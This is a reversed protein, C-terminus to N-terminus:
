PSIQEFAVSQPDISILVVDGPVHVRIKETKTENHRITTLDVYAKFDKKTRERLVAAEAEITIAVVDPTLKFVRADGPQTLVMIPVGITERQIPNTIPNLAPHIGTEIGFQVAFWILTALMLSFLKLWFNHQIFARLSM